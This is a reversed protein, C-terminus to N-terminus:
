VHYVDDELCASCRMERGRGRRVGGCGSHSGLNAGDKNDAGGRANALSHGAAPVPQALFDDDRAPTCVPECSELGLEGAQLGNLYTM